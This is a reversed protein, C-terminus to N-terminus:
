GGGEDGYTERGISHEREGVLAYARVIERNAAVNQLYSRREEEDSIKAARQQLFCHAEELIRDARADDNAQLVRYCTLYVRLPEFAGDLTATELYSLIEEVHELAQQRDGQALATRALGALPENARHHEQLERHLALAERYADAAGDLCDLGVLAHGLSTLALPTALADGVDQSVLLAQECCKRATEDDGLNHMIGGLTALATGEGRPLGLERFMALGQEAIDKSRAYDGLSDFVWSLGGLLFAEEQRAGVERAVRLCQELYHRAGDYDGRTWVALGLPLVLRSQGQQDGIEQYISLGQTGYEVAEDYEAHYYCVMCLHYLSDAQQKRLGASRALTLAQVGHARASEYDGREWLAPGLAAHGAAETAVDGALHAWRIAERAAAACTGLDGTMEGYWARRVAVVARKQDDDLGDTLLELERLVRDQEEREGQLQYIGECALLLEFRGALDEEPTLDLARSFYAIAEANAYQAAAQDGARRLYELARRRAGAREWHHALLGLLEEIRDALLDELAEAVQRHSRRRERRLLGNYAAERTLEHKFIYELEPLRARERIMEERQLTLLHADLERRGRRSREPSAPEPRAREAQVIVALVRYLFIRGIVSALQLTRRAEEQLRDMRAMLVGQLTDPIAIDEVEEVREWRGTAEGYTIAESDILSRIIEEVYFPNGEAHDLIRGRLATSLTEIRLLHGVLTESEATTLPELWLDIHRHHYLRAATERAQWCGHERYPRFVGILLLPARDSLGMLHELLELSTPDAWHLDECVLSLPGDCASCELFTEVARFTNAQLREGPLGQLRAEEEAELPLSMLHALYPYVSEFRDASIRQVRERLVRQVTAPPDEVTVELLARLVDLWLLYAVSTGYSLCRGEVWQLGLPLSEKRLETVLRSKGVGADGVVTVIGGMGAQLRELAERLARFESERGVMPSELGVIGRPKGVAARPALIRYVPVPETRGRVQIPGLAEAEFLPAILRYTDGTILVTGPEAATEMRSALNVADGMATYEVRLDSGVEGVVVLGTHIGVRVNFGSIGREEELRAAYEQAGAIIDLAARCAREADDEHAIPAGFFALIRDGALRALTGEYRTVPEILVDFAGEMIETFEEPDLREAMPTSGKVDSFLMTVIRREKSVEGRTALLREAFERPVLRQLREAV